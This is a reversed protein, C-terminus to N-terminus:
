AEFSQDATFNSIPLDFVPSFTRAIFMIVSELSFTQILELQEAKNTEFGQDLTM